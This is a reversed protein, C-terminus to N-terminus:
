RWISNRMGREKNGKGKHTTEQQMHKRECRGQEGGRRRQCLLGIRGAPHLVHALRIGVVEFHFPREIRVPFVADGFATVAIFSKFTPFPMHPISHVALAEHAPRFASQLLQHVGDIVHFGMGCRTRCIAAPLGHARHVMGPVLATLGRTYPTDVANGEVRFIGIGEEGACRLAADPFSGIM